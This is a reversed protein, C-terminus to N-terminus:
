LANPKLSKHLKAEENELGFWFLRKLFFIFKIPLPGSAWIVQLCAHSITSPPTGSLSTRHWPKCWKGFFLIDPFSYLSLILVPYPPEAGMAHETVIKSWFKYMLHPLGAWYSIYWTSHRGRHLKCHVLFTDTLFSWTEGCHQSHSHRFLLIVVPPQVEWVAMIIWSLLTFISPNNKLWLADQFSTDLITRCIFFKPSLSRLLCFKVHIMQSQSQKQWVHTNM